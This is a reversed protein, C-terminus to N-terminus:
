SPVKEFFMLKAGLPTLKFKANKSRKKANPLYKACKPCMELAIYVHKYKFPLTM